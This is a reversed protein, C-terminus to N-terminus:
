KVGLKKPNYGKKSSGRIQINPQIVVTKNRNVKKGSLMDLLLKAAQQGVDYGKFDVSTLEGPISNCIYYNNNYGVVGFNRDFDSENIANIIGMAILDDFCFFADPIEELSLLEKAKRYGIKNVKDVDIYASSYEEFCVYKEDIDIGAEALAAMYGQYREVSVSYYINAVYAIRKYGQEILHKTAIYGGYFSNSIVKPSQIGPLGRNCAVFPINKEKLRKFPATDGDEIVSPVIVIGNVGASIMNNIYQKQKHPDNDTNCVQTNINHQSAVDEIGRLIEPYTDHLINPIIVGWQSVPLKESRRACDAVYTGSGDKTYLYGEGVLESIAREITTRTVNFERALQTRSPIRQNANLSQLLELIRRKVQKYLLQNEKM